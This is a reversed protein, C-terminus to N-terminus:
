LVTVELVTHPKNACWWTENCEKLKTTDGAAFKEGSRFRYQKGCANCKSVVRYMLDHVM